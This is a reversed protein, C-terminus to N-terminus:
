NKSRTISGYCPRYNSQLLAAAENYYADAAKQKTDYIETQYSTANVLRAAADVNIIAEYMNQLASYEDALKDWRNLERSNNLSAIKRLHKQQVAKYVEPLAKLADEDSSKKDLRKVVDFLTKDEDVRSLYDKSTKCSALVFLTTAFLLIRKM